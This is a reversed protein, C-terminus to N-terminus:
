LTIWQHLGHCIVHTWFWVPLPWIGNREGHRLDPESRAKSLNTRGAQSKKPNFAPRLCTRCTSVARVQRRCTLFWTQSWTQSRSLTISNPRLRVVACTKTCPCGSLTWLTSSYDKFTIHRFETRFTWPRRCHKFLSLTKSFAQFTRSNWWSTKSIARSSIQLM